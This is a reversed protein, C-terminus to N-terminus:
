VFAWNSFSNSGASCRIGPIPFSITWLSLAPDQPNDLSSFGSASIKISSYLTINTLVHFRGVEPFASTFTYLANVTEGIGFGDVEVSLVSLQIWFKEL